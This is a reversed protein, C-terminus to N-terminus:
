DQYLIAQLMVKIKSQQFALSQVLAPHYVPKFNSKPIFLQSNVISSFSLVDSHIITVKFLAQCTLLPQSIVM